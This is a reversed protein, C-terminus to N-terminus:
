LFTDNMVLNCEKAAKLPEHAGACTGQQPQRENVTKLPERSGVCTGQQPPTSTVAVPVEQYM